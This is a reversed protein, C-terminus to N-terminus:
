APRPATEYRRYGGYRGYQSGPRVDNLVAGQVTAGSQEFRRVALAIERAPHQGARLVLLNLGAHRAVLAADTVTLVPPTDVVVVDYRGAAEALLREFGPAMLLEAPNPPLAGTPLLDLRETATHHAAADLSAAGGIAESLGPQQEVALDGHLSGNRLDADVLLVRRGAAALLHALNVAVFSKGVGPTPGTIAVVGNRAGALAFQVTTRLARLDELGRDGPRLVPLGRGAGPRPLRRHAGGHTIAAFVPVGAGAEIEDPDAVGDELSRRLLAAVVGGGIGFLLALALVQFSQPRIPRLPAVAADVIRVTGLTGSRGVRLEQAKKLLNLYLDTAVGVDRTLRAAERETEPLLRMRAMWAARQSELERLRPDLAAFDPYEPTHRHQLRAREAQVEAIGREIDISREIMKLTEVTLDATGRKVRFATLANEARDLTTKLVPLQGELFALTSEVEASRRALNDQVHTESLARVVAAARQPDSDELAISVIGTKGKEDVRLARQLLDIADERSRQVVVLETGPRAVLESVEIEAWRDGDARRVAQGVEGELLATGDPAALAFRGGERATLVLKRGVLDPSVQLRALRIREGGWAFRAVGLRSLAEAAPPPAPDAGRHGRAVAVGIWPITRPYAEVDLRLQDVIQGLLSRSQLLEIETEAPSADGLLTSVVELGPLSRKEQAVQLLASARYVPTALWLYAIGCAAAATAVALVTWRKELITWALQPLVHEPRHVAAHRAPGPAPVGSGAPAHAEREQMM